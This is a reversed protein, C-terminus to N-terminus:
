LGFYWVPFLAVAIAAIQLGIVALASRFDRRLWHFAFWALFPLQGAILIQFIHAAAGEDPEHRAGFLAVASIVTVFALASMVIPIVGSPKRVLATVNGPYTMTRAGLNSPQAREILAHRAIDAAAKWDHGEDKILADMEDGYRDRWAAPYLRTLWHHRNRAM